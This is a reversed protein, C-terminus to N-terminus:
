DKDQTKEEIIPLPLVNQRPTNINNSNHWPIVDKLLIQPTNKMYKSIYNWQNDIWQIPNIPHEM